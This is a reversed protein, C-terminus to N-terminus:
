HGPEKMGQSGADKSGACTVPVKDVISVFLALLGDLAEPDFSHNPVIAIVAANAASFTLLRALSAHIGHM